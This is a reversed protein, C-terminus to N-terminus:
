PNQRTARISWGSNNTGSLTRADNSLTLTDEANKDSWKLVLTNGARRWTGYSGGSWSMKGDETFKVTGQDRPSQGPPAFAWTWVGVIPNDGGGSVIGSREMQAQLRQRQEGGGDGNSSVVINVWTKGEPAPNCMLVATHVSKIGVSFAGADYDVRYGEARLASASRKRCEEQTIGLLQQGRSWGPAQAFSSTGLVSFAVAWLLGCLSARGASSNILLVSFIRHNFRLRSTKM